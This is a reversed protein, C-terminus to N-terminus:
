RARRKHQEVIYTSLEALRLRARGKKDADVLAVSNCAHSRFEHVSDLRKPEGLTKELDVLFEELPRDLYTVSLKVLRDQRITISGKWGESKRGVTRRAHITKGSGAVMSPPRAPGRQRSIEQAEDDSMGVRYGFFTWADCDDAIVVQASTLWLAALMSVRLLNM